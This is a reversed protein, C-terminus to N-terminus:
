FKIITVCFIFINVIGEFVHKHCVMSAHCNTLKWASYGGRIGVMGLYSVWLHGQIGIGVIM